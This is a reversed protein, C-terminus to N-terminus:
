KLLAIKTLIVSDGFQLKCFYIGNKLEDVNLTIQHDGSLYKGDAVKQVMEGLNNTIIITVQGDTPISFNITTSTNFPNPYVNCKLVNDNKAPEVMGLPSDVYKRAFRFGIHYWPHNPDQPGRYYSPNRNSVRSHGDNITTTTYGNYWNGGRMGRYPKGDPMIFGSTPGTPNDVPSLSYYNQGYWDNILEWVNGAMDCLGYSNIGSTTQYSTASASWNYDSKQRLAGNYFGV